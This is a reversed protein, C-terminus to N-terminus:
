MVPGGGPPYLHGAEKSSINVLLIGRLPGDPKVINRMAPPTKNYPHVFTPFPIVIMLYDWNYCYISSFFFLLLLMQDFLQYNYSIAEMRKM